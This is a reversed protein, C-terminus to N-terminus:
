RKLKSLRPTRSDESQKMGRRWSVRLSREIVQRKIAERCAMHGIVLRVEQLHKARLAQKIRAEAEFRIDSIQGLMEEAGVYDDGRAYGM